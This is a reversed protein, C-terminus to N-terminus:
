LDIGEAVFNIKASKHLFYYKPWKKAFNTNKKAIKQV